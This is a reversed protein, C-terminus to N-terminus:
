RMRAWVGSSFIAWISKMKAVVSPVNQAKASDNAIPM